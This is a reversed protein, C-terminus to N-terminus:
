SFIEELGDTLPGEKMTRLELYLAAIGASQVAAVITESIVTMIVSAIMNFFGVGEALGNFMASAIAYILALLLIIGKSGSTLTASRRLSDIIGTGESMLAPVAVLWMLMLIVGPIIFLLLGFLIAFLSVFSLGALSFFRSLAQGFCSGIDVDQDSYDRVTAVILMAQLLTILVIYIIFVAAFIGFYGLANFPNNFDWATNLILVNALGEPHLSYYQFIGYPLGVILLSLGLFVIPNRGIVSFTASMVRGIDLSSGTAM